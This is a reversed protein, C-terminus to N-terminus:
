LGSQPHEPRAAQAVVLIGRRLDGGLKRVPELPLFGATPDTTSGPDAEAQSLDKARQPARILRFKTGEKEQSLMQRAM